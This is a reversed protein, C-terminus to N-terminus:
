GKWDCSDSPKTTLPKLPATPKLGYMIDVGVEFMAEDLGPKDHHLLFQTSVYKLPKERSKELEKLWMRVHEHQPVWQRKQMDYHIFDALMGAEPAEGDYLCADVQAKSTIMRMYYGTPLVVNSKGNTTIELMKLLYVILGHEGERSLVDKMVDKSLFPETTTEKTQM